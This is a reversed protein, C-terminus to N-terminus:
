FCCIAETEWDRPIRRLSPLKVALQFQQIKVQSHETTREKLAQFIWKEWGLPLPNKKVLIM